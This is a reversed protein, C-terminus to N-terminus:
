GLRIEEVAEKPCGWDNAQEPIDPRSVDTIFRRWSNETRSGSHMATAQRTHSCHYGYIASGFDGVSNYVLGLRRALNSDVHWGLIMQENFGHYAFLDARQVLQFDGPNDYLVFNEHLVVENLHLTSGWTRLAAIARLPNYRDLSEWLAEPLELRPAHYFGSTAGHVLASLSMGSLPVFIMDTNSSLIWRNLHSSRRIAVNRAVPEILQLPTQTRFKEHAYPRIRFIRLIDRARQTLTDQIAEPFTCLHDPTNYDTFLIEDSSDTLLEAICNFSLAARKGINYGYDDNRGYLVVSIM